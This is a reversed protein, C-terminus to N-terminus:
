TGPVSITGCGLFKKDIKAIAHYLGGVKGFNACDLTERQQM